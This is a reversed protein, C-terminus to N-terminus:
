PDDPHEEVAIVMSGLFSMKGSAKKVEAAREKIEAKVDDVTAMEMQEPEEVSSCCGMKRQAHSRAVAARNEDAVTCWGWAVALLFSLIYAAQECESAPCRRAM